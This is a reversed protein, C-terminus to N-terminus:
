STCIKKFEFTINVLESFELGAELIDADDDFHCWIIKANKIKELITLLEFIIKSSSTNFYELNLILNTAPNCDKSYAKLWDLVPSYFKAADEPLSRGTIEFIGNVKDLVIRPTDESAHWNIGNM